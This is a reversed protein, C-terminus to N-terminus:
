AFTCRFRVVPQCFNAQRVWVGGQCVFRIYRDLQPSCCGNWFNDVEGEICEARLLPAPIAEALAAEGQGAGETALEALFAEESAPTLLPEAAGVAGAFLVFGLLLWCACRTTKM